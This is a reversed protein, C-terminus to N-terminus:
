ALGDRVIKEGARFARTARRGVVSDFEAAPIGDGPRQCDLMEPGVRAGAAIDVAAVVSRRAAVAKNSLESPMAHKDGNGLAAEVSRVERVLERFEGPELSAEHDPGPLDRDLTLHKEIIAAGLAVAAIAVERGRTHDSYGVPVGFRSGLAAMARLNVEASPAPYATVCQLLAVDAAGAERMTRLALGVEAFDAMGTSLVIPRGKAALHRLLPIYTLDGSSVKFFPVDLEALLDASELDFPTSSFIIGRARAHRSLEVHAEASLELRRLMERQSESSSTRVAQYDAKPADATALAEARFTQFKVADAGADAAAVVLRRALEVDGNHNVGAEAIVFCPAGDGILHGGIHM